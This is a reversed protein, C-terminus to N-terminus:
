SKQWWVRKAQKRRNRHIEYNEENWSLQQYVRNYCIHFLEEFGKIGNTQM